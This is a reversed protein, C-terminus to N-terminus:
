SALSNWKNKALVISIRDGADRVEVKAVESAGM